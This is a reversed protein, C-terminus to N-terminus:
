GVNSLHNSNEVGTSIEVATRVYELDEFVDLVDLESDTIDSLVQMLCRHIEQNM